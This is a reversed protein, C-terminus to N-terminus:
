TLYCDTARCWWCRAIAVSVTAGAGIPLAGAEHSALDAKVDTGDAAHV